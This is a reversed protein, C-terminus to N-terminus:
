PDFPPRAADPNLVAEVEIANAIEPEMIAGLHQVEFESM